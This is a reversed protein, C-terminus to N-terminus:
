PSSNLLASRTTLYYTYMQRGGALLVGAVPVMVFVLLFAYEVQVAGRKRRARKSADKMSGGIDRRDM